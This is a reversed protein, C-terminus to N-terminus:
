TSHIIALKTKDYGRLFEDAKMKRKGELQLELLHVFGDTAAVKIYSKGDSVFTGIAFTHNAVEVKSQYVKLLKGNLTSLAAPYPSLGRIQNHLSYVSKNWLLQCHATYIKPAHKIAKSIDQEVCPYNGKEILELTKMVLDAGKQMLEDHLEGANTNEGISVKEQLIIQGTDIEHRLFFTTIGTEKEGNMIAWNIPAAGRYQPLLSAHLNFTGLKPMNWVIEPLMRFAIVVQLDAHLTKLEEIFEPAKLNVPQMIYLGKETAYKKVASEHLHMGRGAPKNPATIVGVIHYGKQYMADLSAVAFDPTGIFVIRLPHM